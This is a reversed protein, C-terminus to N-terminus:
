GVLLAEVRKLDEPTDVGHAPAEDVVSVHIGMGAQLARLQELSEAEELSAPPLESLQLLSAARYAYLGVHRLYPTKEPLEQPVGNAFANRHWPIPARSFYQAMGDNGLVAKVANPNFVESPESIPNALTAIAAQPHNALAEAVLDVFRGELMPEDGQVNVIITEGPLERKRVIEALRDSGTSHNSDTMMAEAGFGRAAKAIREDDTAIWVFSAGVQQANEYVWQIM